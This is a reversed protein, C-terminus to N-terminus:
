DASASTIRHTIFISFALRYGMFNQLKRSYGKDGFIPKMPMLRNSVILNTCCLGENRWRKCLERSM